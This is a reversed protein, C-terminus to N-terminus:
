PTAHPSEEPDSYHKTNGSVPLGLTNRYAMYDAISNICEISFVAQPHAQFVWQKWASYFYMIGITDNSKRNKCEWMEKGDLVSPIFKIYKYEGNM